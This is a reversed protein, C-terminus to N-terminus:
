SVETSDGVAAVYTAYKQNDPFYGHDGLLSVDHPNGIKKKLQLKHNGDTTLYLQNLHRECFDAKSFIFTQSSVEPRRSYSGL